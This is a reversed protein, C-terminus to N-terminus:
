DTKNMLAIIQEILLQALKFFLEDFLSAESFLKIMSPLACSSSWPFFIVSIRWEDVTGVYTGAEKLATEMEKITILSSDYYVTNIESSGRWGKEVKEVGKLGELADQGVDYWQVTFTAKFDAAASSPLNVSLILLFVMITAFPLKMKIGIAQKM